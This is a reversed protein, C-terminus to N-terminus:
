MLIFVLNLNFAQVRGDSVDERTPDRRGLEELLIQFRIRRLVNHPRGQM